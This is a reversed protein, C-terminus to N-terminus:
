PLSVAGSALAAAARAGVFPGGTISMAGAGPMGLGMTQASSQAQGGGAQPGALVHIQEFRSSNFIQGPSFPELKPLSASGSDAFSSM